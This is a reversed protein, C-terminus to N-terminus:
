KLSNIETIYILFFILDFGFILLSIFLYCRLLFFFFYMELKCLCDQLTCSQKVSVAPAPLVDRFCVRGQRLRGKLLAENFLM